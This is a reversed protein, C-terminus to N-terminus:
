SKTLSYTVTQLWLKAATVTLIVSSVARCVVTTEEDRIVAYAHHVHSIHTECKRAKINISPSPSSSNTQALYRPTETGLDVTIDNARDKDENTLFTVVEVNFFRRNTLVELEVGM